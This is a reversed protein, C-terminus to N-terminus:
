RCPGSPGPSSPPGPRPPRGPRPRGPPRRPVGGARGRVVPPRCRPVVPRGYGSPGSLRLPRAGSSPARRRTRRTPEAAPAVARTPRRAGPQGPRRRHQGAHAGQRQQGPDTVVGGKITRGDPSTGAVTGAPCASAVKTARVVVPEFGAGKLRSQRRTRGVPVEREPHQRQDGDSIKQSPPPSSSRRPKGKMADRLTEVGGPQHRGDRRAEDEANTQPWDPDAMIGAVALQKTMAVLAATKERRHHRDQRGGAQRRHRTVNSAPRGGDCQGLRPSTASRAAPRTSRPAPWRPASGRAARTASTSSRATWTASRAAGPDARLVQRRRRAHRLRQGPGAAHDRSASPSRAGSTRRREDNALDRDDQPRPVQHRAAQRRRGRERRRGAAGAARLLHQGLPRLRDVHQAAGAM